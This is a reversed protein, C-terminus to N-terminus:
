KKRKIFFSNMFRSFIYLAVCFEVADLILYIQWLVADAATLPITSTPTSTPAGGGACGITTCIENGAGGNWLGTITSTALTSTAIFVEDLIVNSYISNRQNFCLNSVGAEISTITLGSASGDQVGDTYTKGNGSGDISLIVLHESGDSANKDAAITNLSAFGLYTTSTLDQTGFRWGQNAAGMANVWIYGTSTAKVWLGLSLPFSGPLAGDPLAIKSTDGTTCKAGDNLKAPIYSIGTDTGNYGHGSADVSDGNLHYLAHISGDSIEYAAFAPSAILFIILSSAAITSRRM